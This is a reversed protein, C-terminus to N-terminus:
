LPASARSPGFGSAALSEAVSPGWTGQHYPSVPHPDALSEDALAGAVAPLVLALV